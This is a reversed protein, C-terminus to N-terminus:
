LPFYTLAEKVLGWIMNLKEISIDDSYFPFTCFITYATLVQINRVMAESVDLADWFETIMRHDPLKGHQIICDLGLISQYLKAWDYLVHGKLTFADGFKGRMDFFKFKGSHIMINSFWLDGHIVQNLPENELSARNISDLISNYVDQFDEFPYFQRQHAREKLKVIYHSVIHDKSISVGDDITLQHIQNKVVKVLNKLMQTSVLGEYYLKDLGTGNIYEITMENDTHSYLTPFVDLGKVHKYFFIEGQISPGTKVLRDKSVRRIKNHRNTIFGFDLGRSHTYFGMDKFLNMQFTNFAKDDIYIDGYPKGFVLEDYEIGYRELTEVVVKANNKVVKGMNSNSSVMGRATHIIIEHGEERMSALFQAIHDIREVSSYDGPIEPYTVLTNDLDFVIRLKPKVLRHINRTIEDATGLSYADPLHTATVVGGADILEQTVKSLFSETDDRLIVRRCAELCTHISAFGYGGICIRESIREREAVRTVCGAQDVDVFSYHSLGSNNESTVIFNGPPLPDGLGTYINDNDLVLLQEDVDKLGKLGVYLSEAPGRTQYDLVCFEFEKDPFAKLLYQRFSYVDLTKNYVVTINKFPVSKLVYWILHTGNVLNMPKPFVNDFRTGAGGCLLVTKM